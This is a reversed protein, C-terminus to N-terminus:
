RFRFHINTVTIALVTVLMEYHDRISKAALMRWWCRYWRVFKTMIRPSHLEHVWVVFWIVWPGYSALNGSLDSKRELEVFIRFKPETNRHPETLVWIKLALLDNPTMKAIKPWKQLIWFARMTAMEHASIPLTQGRHIKFFCDSPVRYFLTFM